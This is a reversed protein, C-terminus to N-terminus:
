GRRVAVRGPDSRRRRTRPKRGYFHEITWGREGLSKVEIWITTSWNEIDTTTWNVTPMLIGRCPADFTGGHGSMDHCPDGILSVRSAGQLGCSQCRYDLWILKPRQRNWRPKCDRILNAEVHRAERRSGHRSIELQTTGSLFGRRKRIHQSLRGSYRATHGVYLIVGSAGRVRYVFWSYRKAM